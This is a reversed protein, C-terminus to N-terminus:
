EDDEEDEDDGSSETSEDVGTDADIDDEDPQEADKEVEESEGGDTSSEEKGKMDGKKKSEPKQRELIKFEVRATPKPEAKEGDKEGEPAVPKSAGFGKRTLRSTDVGSSAVYDFVSKARAESEKQKAKEDGAATHVRIEVETIETYVKLVSALEALVSRSDNTLKSRADGTDSSSKEFAIPKTVVIEDEKVTIFDSPCGDKKKLGKQDPCKDDADKINDGDNDPDPCGDDDEFGDKDEAKKPCADDKTLIGDEDHDDDEEPCGDEDEWEDIDEPENPCEDEEDDIGDEDNDLDPCGDWDQYEDKDEAKDACDDVDDRLGDGDSDPVVKRHEPYHGFRVGLAAFLGGEYLRSEDGATGTGADSEITLDDSSGNFPLWQNFGFRLYAAMIEGFYRRVEFAPRLMVLGSDFEQNANTQLNLSGLGVGFGLSLEWANRRFAFAPELGGYIAMLDPDNSFPTEIGSFLTIRSGELLSAELAFTFSSVTSTDFQAADSPALLNRNWRDLGTFFLGYEVGGGYSPKWEYSGHESERKKKDPAGKEKDSSSM